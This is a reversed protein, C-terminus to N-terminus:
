NGAESRPQFYSHQIKDPFPSSIISEELKEPAPIGTVIYSSGADGIEEGQCRGCNLRMCYKVINCEDNTFKRFM